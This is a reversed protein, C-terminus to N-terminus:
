GRGFTDSKGLTQSACLGAAQIARFVILMAVNVSFASIISAIIGIITSALYM